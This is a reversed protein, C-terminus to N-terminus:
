IHGNQKMHTYVDLCIQERQRLLFNELEKQLAPTSSIFDVVEKSYRTGSSIQLEKLVEHFNKTKAYSRGLYDTAADLSDCISIIDILIKDSYKQPDFEPPYGLTGDSFKHHGAAIGSFQQLSPIQKLIKLSTIPHYKIVEFEIDVLKRYQMNIVNTCQIKGIDHILAGTGIFKLIEEAKEQVESVSQCSCVGILADPKKEIMCRTVIKACHALIVSHFLTQPQRYVTLRLLSSLIEDKDLYPLAPILYLYIFGDAVGEMFNNTPFHTYVDLLHHFVLHVGKVCDPCDESLILFCRLLLNFCDMNEDDYDAWSTIRKHPLLKEKNILEHYVEKVNKEELYYELMLVIAHYKVYSSLSTEMSHQASLEKAMSLQRSLQKQTFNQNTRAKANISIRLFNSTWCNAFYPLATNLPLSMDAESRLRRLIKMRRDYEEFFQDISIFPPENAYEATIVSQFDYFTMGMSKEEETLQDYYEEFIPIAHYCLELIRAKLCSVNLFYYVSLLVMDCKMLSVPDELEEYFVYLSRALEYAAEIDEFRTSYRYLFSLLPDATERTWPQREKTFYYVHRKLYANQEQYKKELKQAKKSFDALWQQPDKDMQFSNIEELERIQSFYIMFYNEWENRTTFGHELEM